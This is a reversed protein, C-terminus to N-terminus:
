LPTDTYLLACQIVHFNSSSPMMDFRKKDEERDVSMQSSKPTFNMEYGILKTAMKYTTTAYIIDFKDAIKSKETEDNRKPSRWM